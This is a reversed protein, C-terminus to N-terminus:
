IFFTKKKKKLSFLFLFFKFYFFRFDFFFSYNCCLKYKKQIRWTVLDNAIAVFPDHPWLNAFSHKMVIIMCTTLFVFLFLNSFLAINLSIRFSLFLMDHAALQAATCEFIKREFVFIFCRNADCLFIIPL